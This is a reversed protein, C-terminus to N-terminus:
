FDNGQPRYYPMYDFDRNIKQIQGENYTNPYFTGDLILSVYKDTVKMGDKVLGYDMSFHGENVDVTHPVKIFQNNITDQLATRMKEDFTKMVYERTFATVIGTLSNVVYSIDGGNLSATFNDCSISIDNLQM